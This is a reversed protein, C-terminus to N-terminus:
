RIIIGKQSRRVQSPTRTVLYKQAEPERRFKHWAALRTTHDKAFLEPHTRRLHNYDRTPIKFVVEGEELRRVPARGERVAQNHELINRRDKNM